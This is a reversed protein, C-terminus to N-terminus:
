RQSENQRRCAHTLSHAVRAHKEARRAFADHPIRFAFGVSLRTRTTQLFAGLARSRAPRSPVDVRVITRYSIRLTDQSTTTRTTLAFFSEFIEEPIVLRAFRAQPRFLARLHEFLGRAEYFKTM